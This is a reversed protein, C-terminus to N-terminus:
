LDKRGNGRAHERKKERQIKEEIRNVSIEPIIVTRNPTQIESLPINWLRSLLVALDPESPIPYKNPDTPTTQIHIRGNSVAPIRSCKIGCGRTTGHDRGYQIISESAAATLELLFHLQTRHDFCTAYCHWRFAVGADCAGCEPPTCPVTRQGWYHTRTGLPKSTTIVALLPKNTSVRVIPFPRDNPDCPISDSLTLM